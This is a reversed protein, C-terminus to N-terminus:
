ETEGRTKTNRKRRQEEHVIKQCAACHNAEVRRGTPKDCRKCNKGPLGKIGSETLLKGLYTMGIGLQACMDKRTVGADRLAIIQALREARPMPIKEAPPTIKVALAPAATKPPKAPRSRQSDALMPAPPHEEYLKLRDKLEQGWPGLIRMRAFRYEVEFAEDVVEPHRM